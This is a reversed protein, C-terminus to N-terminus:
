YIKLGIKQQHNPSHERGTIQDSAFSHHFYHLYQCDGEFTGHLYQQVRHGWAQLLGRGVWAEVLSEQVSRPLDSDTDQPTM